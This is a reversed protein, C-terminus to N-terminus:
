SEERRSKSPSIAAESPTGESVTRDITVLPTHSGLHVLLSVLPNDRHLVGNIYVNRM